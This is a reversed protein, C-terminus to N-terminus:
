AQFPRQDQDAAQQLDAEPWHWIMINQQAILFVSLWLKFRLIAHGHFLVKVVHMWRQIRVFFGDRGGSIDFWHRRLFGESLDSLSQEHLVAGAGGIPNFDDHGGGM